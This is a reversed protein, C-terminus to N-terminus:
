TEEKHEVHPIYDAVDRNMKGDEDFSDRLSVDLWVKEGDNTYKDLCQAAHPPVINCLGLSYNKEIRRRDEIVLDKLETKKLAM